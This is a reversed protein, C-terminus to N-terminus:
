KLSVSSLTGLEQCETVLVAIGTPVPPLSWLVGAVPVISPHQLRRYQWLRALVQICGHVCNRVM